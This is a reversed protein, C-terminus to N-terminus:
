YAAHRLVEAYTKGECNKEACITKYSTSNYRRRDKPAYRYKRELKVFYSFPNQKRFMKVYYESISSPIHEPNEVAKGAYM